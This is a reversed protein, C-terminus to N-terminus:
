EEVAGVSVAPVATVRGDAGPWTVMSGIPLYRKMAKAPAAFEVGGLPTATKLTLTEPPTTVKVGTAPEGNVVPVPASPVVPTPMMLLTCYIEAPRGERLGPVELELASLSM